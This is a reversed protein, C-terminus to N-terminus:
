GACTCRTMGLAFMQQLMTQSRSTVAVWLTGDGSFCSVKSASRQLSIMRFVRFHDSSPEIGLFDYRQIRAM